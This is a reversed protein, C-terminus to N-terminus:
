HLFPNNAKERGITTRNGHGPYVVTEDPLMLLKQKIGEILQRMNGGPFDTRGVSDAFLTDGVFIVNEGEAYLCMGGPTHGPTHIVRLKVGAEEIIDPEDVIHSSPAISFSGGAQPSSAQKGEFTTTPPVSSQRLTSNMMFSLNGVSDTLLEADLKHIYIAISPFRERLIDVGAIHDIHGHTLVVAVPTLKKDELFKLLPQADLGTDIIMCESAKDSSRVVYCNTEFEGLVLRDIKM